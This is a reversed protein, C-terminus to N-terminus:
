AVRVSETMSYISRSNYTTVATLPQYVAYDLFPDECETSPDAASSYFSVVIVDDTYPMTYTCALIVPM